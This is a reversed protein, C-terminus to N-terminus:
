MEQNALDKDHESCRVQIDTQKNNCYLLYHCHGQKTHKDGGGEVHWSSQLTKTGSEPKGTLIGRGCVHTKNFFHFVQLQLDNSLKRLCYKEELELTREKCESGKKEPAADNKDDTGTKDKRNQSLSWFVEM